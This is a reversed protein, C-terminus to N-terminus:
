TEEGVKHLLALNTPRVAPIPFGCILIVQQGHEVTKATLMTSEVVKVMEELSTVHPVLHPTVGWYFNMRNYADEEPTFALIPLAPRTKSMMLATRGSRTFITVAAVNRDHALESAAMCIFYTDDSSDDLSIKGAWRGWQAINKEAQHAIADMMQVSEVPYKGSATEGSLMVADTGDFIANAVDSAEARTPRPNNIMSDLMQTATIVIKAKQNAADIIQKQAIPVTDPAMEVGLDGRAVMVGDAVELISHLNDLAEPRELKAILPIHRRPAAQCVAERVQQVDDATRVFSIAVADIGIKLGFDLDARDKATFGPINLKAGPLNVGKHTKLRGGLIVKTIVHDAKVASVQLELNGDDLLIRNGPAVSELLQPFDIPVISGAGLIPQTTLTLQDGPLIDIFGGALEGTRIKPGQLDQMVAISRGLRSAAQRLNQVVQAHDAHTGHSFNLRAIDVGSALLKELMAPSNSSPGITAVIKTSRSM